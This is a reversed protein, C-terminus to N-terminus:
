AISPRIAAQRLEAPTNVNLFWRNAPLTEPHVVQGAQVLIEVPLISVPQGLVSAATRFGAYCGLQGTLLERELVPLTERRLVVPFTEPFANVAAVTVARGSIRAHHLLHVILSPPLLPMDVSLLVAYEALTSALAACVGALPGLDPDRDPVVAAYSELSARAGAIRATLGAAELIGIARVILTQGGFEVLAKDRGMRSSRGGALVFGEAERDQASGLPM